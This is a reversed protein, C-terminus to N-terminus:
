FNFRFGLDLSSNLDVVVLARARTPACARVYVEDVNKNLFLGIKWNERNELNTPTHHLSYNPHVNRLM